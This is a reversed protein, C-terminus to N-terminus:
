EEQALSNVWCRPPKEQAEVANGGQPIRILYRKRLSTAEKGTEVPHPIEGLAKHQKVLSCM